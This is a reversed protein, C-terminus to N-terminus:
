MSDFYKRRRVKTGLEELADQSAAEAVLTKGPQASVTQGEGLVLTDSAPVV